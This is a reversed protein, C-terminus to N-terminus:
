TLRSDLFICLGWINLVPYKIKLPNVQITSRCIGGFYKWVTPEDQWYSRTLTNSAIANYKLIYVDRMVRTHNWGYIRSYRRARTFNIVGSFLVLVSPRSNRSRARYIWEPSYAFTTRANNTGNRANEHYNFFLSSWFSLSRSRGRPLPFFYRRCKPSILVARQPRRGEM